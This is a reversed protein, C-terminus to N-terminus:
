GAGGCGFDHWQASSRPMADCQQSRVRGFGEDGGGACAVAAVVVLLAVGVRGVM